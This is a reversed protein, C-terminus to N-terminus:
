CSGGGLLVETEVNEGLDCGATDIFWLPNHTLAEEETGAQAAVTPLQALLRAGVSEHAKLRSEYLEAASFNM